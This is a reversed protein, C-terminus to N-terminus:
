SKVWIFFIAILLFIIIDIILNKKLKRLKGYYTLKTCHPCYIAKCSIEERCYNCNIKEEM